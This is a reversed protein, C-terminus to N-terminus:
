NYPICKCDLGCCAYARSDCEVSCGGGLGGLCVKFTADIECKVTYKGGSHCGDEHKAHAEDDALTEVQEISIMSNVEAEKASQNKVATFTILGVCASLLIVKLSNM